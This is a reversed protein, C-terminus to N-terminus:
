VFWRRRHFSMLKQPFGPIFRLSVSDALGDLL